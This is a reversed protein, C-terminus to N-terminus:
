TDLELESANEYATLGPLQQLQLLPAGEHRQLTSTASLRGVWIISARQASVGNALDLLGAATAVDDFVFIILVVVFTTITTDLNAAHPVVLATTVCLTPDLPRRLLEVLSHQMACCITSHWGTLM